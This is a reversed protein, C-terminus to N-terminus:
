VETSFTPQQTFKLQRVSQNLEAWYDKSANGYIKSLNPNNYHVSLYEKQETGPLLQSESLEQNVKVRSYSKERSAHKSGNKSAYFNQVSNKYKQAMKWAQRLSAKKKSQYNKMKEGLIKQHQKCKKVIKNIQEEKNKSHRELRDRIEEEKRQAWDVFSKEMAQIRSQKEHQRM